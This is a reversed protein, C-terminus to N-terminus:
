GAPPKPPDVEHRHRRVYAQLARTVVDTVTEGRKEAIAAAPEYLSAPIRFNRVPTKGTPPRPVDRLKSM